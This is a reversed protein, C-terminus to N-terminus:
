PSAFFPQRSASSTPSTARAASDSPRPRVRSSSMGGGGAGIPWHRVSHPHRLRPPLDRSKCGPAARAIHARMSGMSREPLRASTAPTASSPPKPNAMALAIASAPADMQTPVQGGASFM